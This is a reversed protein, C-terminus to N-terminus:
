CDKVLGLAAVALCLRKIQFRQLSHALHQAGTM